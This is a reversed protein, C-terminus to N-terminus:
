YTILNGKSKRYLQLPPAILEHYQYLTSSVWIATKLKDANKTTTAAKRRDAGLVNGSPNQEPLHGPMHLM